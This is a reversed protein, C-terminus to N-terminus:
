ITKDGTIAKICKLCLDLKTKDDASKSIEARYGDSVKIVSQWDKYAKRALDLKRMTETYEQYLKKKEAQAAKMSMIKHKYAAYVGILSHFYKYESAPFNKYDLNGIYALRELQEWVTKDTFDIKM